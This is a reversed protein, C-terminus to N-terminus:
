ARSELGAVLQPAHNKLWIKLKTRAATEIQRVREKTIGLTPGIDTLTEGALRRRLVEGHRGGIAKIGDAVLEALDHNECEEFATDERSMSAFAALESEEDSLPGVIAFSNATRFIRVTDRFLQESIGASERYKPSYIAYPVYCTLSQKPAHHSLAQRIWQTSFTTFRLGRNHDFKNFAQWLGEMGWGILDDLGAGTWEYRKALNWVLLWQSKLLRLKASEDGSRALPWLRREEDAKIPRADQDAEIVEMWTLRM